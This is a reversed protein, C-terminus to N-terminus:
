FSSNGSIFLFLPTIFQAIVFMFATLGASLEDNERVMEFDPTLAYQFSFVALIAIIM